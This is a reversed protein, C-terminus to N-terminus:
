LPMGPKVGSNEGESNFGSDLFKQKLPQAAGVSLVLASISVVQDSWPVKVNGLQLSETARTLALGLHGAKLMCIRSHLWRPGGEGGTGGKPASSAMM